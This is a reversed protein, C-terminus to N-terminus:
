IIQGDPHQRPVATEHWLVIKGDRVRFLAAAEDGPGDCAHNPRDGLKFIVLVDDKGHPMVGIV